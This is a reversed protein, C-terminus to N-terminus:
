MKLIERFADAMKEGGRVSPEVRQEYDEQNKPDLVEFLPLPIVPVGKINIKSTAHTHIARIVRQTKNPNSDYGLASLALDAWSSEAGKVKEMPHYITCVLIKKPKTKSVLRNVYNEVRNGFLDTVYGFGVPCSAVGAVCGPVGCCVRGCDGFAYVNPVCVLPCWAKNKSNASEYRTDGGEDGFCWGPTCRTLVGLNVATCVTPALAVDNGGVSVILMDTERLNDRIFRDQPRMRGFARDDLSTAEVATNLCATTSGPANLHYCVDKKMVQPRLVDEYGNCAPTWEDFWYKNDLSSDGALFTISDHKERLARLAIVLHRVDHGHYPTYYSTITREGKKDQLITPTHAM